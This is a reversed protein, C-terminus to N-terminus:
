QSEGKAARFLIPATMTHELKQQVVLDWLATNGVGEFAVDATIHWLEVAIRNFTRPVGDQLHALIEAAVDEPQRKRLRKWAEGYGDGAARAEARSPRAPDDPSRIIHTFGGRMESCAFGTNWGAGGAPGSHQPDGCPCHKKAM